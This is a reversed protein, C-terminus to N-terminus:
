AFNLFGESCYKLRHSSFESGRDCFLSKPQAQHATPDVSGGRRKRKVSPVSCDGSKRTFVVVRTLARFQRGEAPGGCCGFEVDLESGGGASDLARITM